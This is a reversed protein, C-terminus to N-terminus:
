ERYEGEATRCREGGAKVKTLPELATQVGAPLDKIRVNLECVYFNFLAGNSALNGLKSLKIPLIQLSQEFVELNSKGPRLDNQGNALNGTLRRLQRIDAQLDPRAETLLDSTEVSLASISDLSGLIAGRDNKLGTVLAQLTEITAALETDRTGLTDLVRSLNNVVDGILQDRGALENTLSSTTGLLSEVNGAEGQLTQVLEFALKNTDEPSLAKFLPKFGNLLVNLDLAEETREQPITSGAPLRDTGGEAGQTLTIYRQGILNRFRIQANTNETLPVDTQVGFTVLAQDADVVDVGKVEGVRVGGIRVDDGKAVGTVDSFMAKYEDSQSFLGQSLTLMLILTAGGTLAFFFMLKILASLSERDLKM